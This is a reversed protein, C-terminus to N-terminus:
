LIISETITHCSVNNVSWKNEISNFILANCKIDNDDRLPSDGKAKFTVKYNLGAVVQIEVQTVKTLKYQISHYKKEFAKLAEEAARVVDPRDTEACNYGGLEQGHTM